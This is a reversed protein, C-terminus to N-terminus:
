VAGLGFAPRPARLRMDYRAPLAAVAPRAAPAYDPNEWVIAAGWNSTRPDEVYNPILNHVKFGKRLQKSLNTDFRRGAVVDAVYEDVTESDAVQEYDIILSGAILGRLNLSKLVAFRAEMLLGGVGRSRYAPHVSTDM